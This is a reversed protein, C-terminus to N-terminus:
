DKKKNLSIGKMYYGGFFFALVMIFGTQISSDKIVQFVFDSKTQDFFSLVIAFLVLLIFAYVVVFAIHRRTKSRITNESLSSGVFEALKDAAKANFNAREQKSFALKDAGKTASDIIKGVDVKGVLFKLPNM